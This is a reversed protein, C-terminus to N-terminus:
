SGQTLGYRGSSSILRRYGYSNPSMSVSQALDLRNYPRGANNKEISEALKLSKKLSDRPFTVEIPRRGSKGITNAKAM